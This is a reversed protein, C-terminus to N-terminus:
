PDFTRERYGRKAHPYGGLPPLPLIFDVTSSLRIYCYAIIICLSPFRVSFLFGIVSIYYFFHLLCIFRHREFTPSAQFYEKKIDCMIMRLSLKNQRSVSYLGIKTVLAYYANLTNDIYTYETAAPMESVARCNKPLRPRIQM